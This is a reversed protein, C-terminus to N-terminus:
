NKRQIYKENTSCFTNQLRLYFANEAYEFLVLSISFDINQTFLINKLIKFLMKISNIQFM